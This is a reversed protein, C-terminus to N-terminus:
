RLLVQTLKAAYGLPTSLDVDLKSMVDIKDVMEKYSKFSSWDADTFGLTEALLPTGENTSLKKLLM